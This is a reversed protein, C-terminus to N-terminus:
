VIYYYFSWQLITRTESPFRSMDLILFLEWVVKLTHTHTSEWLRKIHKGGVSMQPLFLYLRNIPRRWNSSPLVCVCVCVCKYVIYNKFCESDILVRTQRPSSSPYEESGLVRGFSKIMRIISKKADATWKIIYVYVDQDYVEDDDDHDSGPRCNILCAKFDSVNYLM